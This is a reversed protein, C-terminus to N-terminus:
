WIVHQLYLVLQEGEQVLHAEIYNAMEDETESRSIVANEPSSPWWECRDSALHYIDSDPLAAIRSEMLERSDAPTEIKVFWIPDIPPLYQFRLGKAGNPIDFGSQEEIFAITTPWGLSGEGLEYETLGTVLGLLTRGLVFAGLLALCLVLVYLYRKV